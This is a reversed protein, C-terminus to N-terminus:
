PGRLSEPPPELSERLFQQFYESVKGKVDEFAMGISVKGDPLNRVFCLKCKVTMAENNGTVPLIIELDINPLNDVGLPEDLPHIIAATAEDCHIQMGAPSIDFVIDERVVGDPLRVPIPRSPVIRIFRRHEKAPTGPFKARKEM